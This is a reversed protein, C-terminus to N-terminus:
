AMLRSLGYGAAPWTMVRHRAGRIGAYHRRDTLKWGRLIVGASATRSPVARRSQRAGTTAMASTVCVSVPRRGRGRRTGEGGGPRSRGCDDHGAQETGGPQGPDLGPVDAASPGQSMIVAGPQRRGRRVQGDPPEPARGPSSNGRCAPLGAIQHRRYRHPGARRESGGPQSPIWSRVPREPCGWIGQPYPRESCPTAPSDTGRIAATLGWRCGHGM